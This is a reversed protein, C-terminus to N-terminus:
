SERKFIFTSNCSYWLPEWEDCDNAIVISQSSVNRLYQVYFANVYAVRPSVNLNCRKTTHELPSIKTSPLRWSSPGFRRDSTPATLTYMPNWHHAFISSTPRRAISSAYWCHLSELDIPWRWRQRVLNTYICMPAETYLSLWWRQNSCIGKRITYTCEM